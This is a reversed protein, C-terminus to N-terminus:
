RPRGDAAAAASADRASCAPGPAAAVARRRGIRAMEYRVAYVRRPGCTPSGPSSRSPWRRTAGRDHRAARPGRRRLPRRPPRRLEAGVGAIAGARGAVSTTARPAACRCAAHHPQAQRGARAVKAGLVEDVVRTSPTPRWRATPRSSAAPSRSWARQRVAHGPPPPVPRRHAREGRTKCWRACGPGRASSTPRPSSARDVADNIAGLLYDVDEPTCQPDDLPGDYDTDTTGIYTLEGWPVVFVSRKDKPCRSSWPSTTACRAGVARHHPHGQGPPDLRPATGEDLARVDDAWVGGANVVAAARSTSADDGDAEVTPAAHGPRRRGQRHGVVDAGNAVSPASTSPRPAPSPSPSAPTTPRPTTTSTAGAGAPRAPLTPM